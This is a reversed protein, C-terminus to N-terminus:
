HSGHRVRGEYEKVVMRAQDVDRKLQQQLEQISAFKKTERLRAVFELTLQQGYLNGQYDILHAEVKRTHVGFTPNPGINIAAPLWTENVLARAAYVGEQPILTAIEALNCTPFGISRGRHEGHVVLGTIAYCRGLARNALGM